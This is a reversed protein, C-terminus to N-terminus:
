TNQAEKAGLQYPALVKGQYQCIVPALTQHALNFPDRTAKM